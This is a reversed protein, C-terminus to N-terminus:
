QLQWINKTIAVPCITSSVQMRMAMQLLRTGLLIPRFGQMGTVVHMTIQRARMINGGVKVFHYSGRIIPASTRQEFSGNSVMNQAAALRYFLLLAIIFYHKSAHM